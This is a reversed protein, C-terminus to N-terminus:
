TPATDAGPDPDNVYRRVTRISVGITDAISGRSWGDADMSRALERNYAEEAARMAALKARGAALYGSQEQMKGLIRGQAEDTGM